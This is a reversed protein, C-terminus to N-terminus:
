SIICRSLPTKIAIIGYFVCIHTIQALFLAGYPTNKEPWKSLITRPAYSRGPFEIGIPPIKKMSIDGYPTNKRCIGAPRLGGVQMLCAYHM